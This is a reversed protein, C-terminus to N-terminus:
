IENRSSQRQEDEDFSLQDQHGQQQQQQLLKSIFVGHM